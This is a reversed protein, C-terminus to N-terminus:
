NFSFVVAPERNGSCRARKHMGEGEKGEVRGRDGRAEDRVKEGEGIGLKASGNATRWINWIREYGWAKTGATDESSVHERVRIKSTETSVDDGGLLKGSRWIRPAM